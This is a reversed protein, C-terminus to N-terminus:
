ETACDIGVFLYLDDVKTKSNESFIKYRGNLYALKYIKFAKAEDKGSASGPESKM